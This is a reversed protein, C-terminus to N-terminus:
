FSHKTKVINKDLMSGLIGSKLLRVSYFDQFFSTFKWIATYGEFYQAEIMSSPHSFRDAEYSYSCRGFVIMDYDQESIDQMLNNNIVNPLWFDDAYLFAIYGNDEQLLLEIGANRAVSVGGNKSSNGFM